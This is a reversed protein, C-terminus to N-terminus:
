ARIVAPLIFFFYNTYKHSFVPLSSIEKLTLLHISDFLLLYSPFNESNKYKLGFLLYQPVHGPRMRCMEVLLQLKLNGLM